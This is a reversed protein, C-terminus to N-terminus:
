KNSIDDLVTVLIADSHDCCILEFRGKDGGGEKSIVKGLQSPVSIITYLADCETHRQETQADLCLNYNVFGQDVLKCENKQKDPFIDM